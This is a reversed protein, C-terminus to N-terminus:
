PEAAPCSPQLSGHEQPCHNAVLALIQALLQAIDFPKAIAIAAGALVARALHERSASMAVVPVKGVRDLHALVDLGSGLPLMVDTVILCYHEPLPTKMELLRIAAVGDRAAEVVLGEDELLAVLVSRIDADDEIVLVEHTGQAHARQQPM